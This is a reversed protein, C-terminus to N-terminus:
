DNAIWGAMNQIAKKKRDRDAKAVEIFPKFALYVSHNLSGVHEFEGHKDSLVYVRWNGNGASEVKVEKAYKRLANLMQSLDFGIFKIM